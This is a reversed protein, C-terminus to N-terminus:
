DDGCYEDCDFCWGESEKECLPAGCAPCRPTDETIEVTYYGVWDNISEEYAEEAATRDNKYEELFDDLDYIGNTGEYSSYLENALEWALNDAEEETANELIEKRIDFQEGMDAIVIFDAM